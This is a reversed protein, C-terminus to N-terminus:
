GELEEIRHPGLEDLLARAQGDAKWVALFYGDRSAERFAYSEDLPSYPRPLRNAALFGTSATVVACLVGVEFANPVYAPWAFDPRGGVNLPYGASFAYWQLGFMGIAGAAGAALVLLPLRSAETDAGEEHLQVPSYTEVDRIGAERLARTARLLAEKGDFRALLIM